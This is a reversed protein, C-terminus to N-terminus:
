EYISSTGPGLSHNVNHTPNDPTAQHAADLLPVRGGFQNQSLAQMAQTQSEAHIYAVQGSMRIKNERLVVNRHENMSAKPM